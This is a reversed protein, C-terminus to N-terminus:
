FAVAKPISNPAQSSFERWFSSVPEGQGYGPADLM